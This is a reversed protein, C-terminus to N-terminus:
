VFVTLKKEILGIRIGKNGYVVTLINEILVLSIHLFSRGAELEM